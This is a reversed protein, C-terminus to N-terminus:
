LSQGAAVASAWAWQFNYGGLWGTVDLLEGICFLGPVKNSEMSRSSFERTDAGGLTVEAKGYGATGAPQIQWAQLLEKLAALEAPGFQRLTLTPLRYHDKFHQVWRAPMRTKLWTPLQQEPHERAAELILEALDQGPFFDVSLSEGPSWYSSIQLIAPGSLGFHTFLLNEPFSAESNSIRTEASIGRLEHLAQDKPHLTLPVLAPRTETLQHGFHKLIRYGLDTAGVKPISLGGCALVLKDATLRGSSTEVQFGSENKSVRQVSLATQIKVGAQRCLNLLLSVIEKASGKCFLQGLKKEYWQIGHGEVLALFDGPTYRALASKCFHPNQSLYHDPSAYLNTFNCRGGGSILIKKGVDPMHEIVLVRRQRKGAEAACMLGAAGAGIVIVDWHEIGNKKM